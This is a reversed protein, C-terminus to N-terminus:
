EAVDVLPIVLSTNGEKLQISKQDGYQLQINDLALSKIQKKLMEINVVCTFDIFNTSEDIELYESANSQLSKIELLKSDKDFNFRISNNDYSSIFLSLRDLISLLNNKNVTINGSYKLDILNNIADVVNNKYIDKNDLENSYIIYHNSEFLLSNGFKKLTLKDDAALDILCILEGTSDDILIPEDLFKQNIKCVLQKNTSYLSDGIYYSALLEMDTKKGTSAKATLIAEKLLQLDIVESINNNLLENPITDFKILEGEDNTELDIKYTGNGKFLLYKENNELEIFEKTTKGVLKAFTDANVMSYFPLSINSNDKNVNQIKVTFTNREDKTTLELTNNDYNISLFSTIPLSNNNGAGKIVKAVASKLVSSEIKM